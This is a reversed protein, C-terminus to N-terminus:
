QFLFLIVGSIDQVYIALCMLPIFHLGNIFLGFLRLFLVPEKIDVDLCSLTAPKRRRYLSFTSISRPYAPDVGSVLINDAM